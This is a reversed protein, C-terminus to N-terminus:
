IKPYKTYIHITQTINSNDSIKTETYVARKKNGEQTNKTKKNTVAPNGKKQNATPHHCDQFHQKRTQRQQAAERRIPQQTTVIMFVTVKKVRVWGQDNMGEEIRM